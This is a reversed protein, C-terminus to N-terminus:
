IKLTDEFKRCDCYNAHSVLPRNFERNIIKQLIVKVRSFFALMDSEDHKLRIHQIRTAKAVNDKKRGKLMVLYDLGQPLKGNKMLYAFSYALGQPKSRTENEDYLSSSTKFEVIKGSKTLADLRCSLPIPLTQKTEPNIMEVKIPIEMATINIDDISEYVEKNDWYEKLMKLGDFLMDEYCQKKLEKDKFDIDSICNLTWNDLFTKRVVGFEAYKWRTKSDYQEYINGIAKHIATGFNLHRQPEPLKLGLWSRYFFLKPCIEYESLMSPTIRDLGIQEKTM